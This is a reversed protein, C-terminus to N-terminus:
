YPKFCELHFYKPPRAGIRIVTEGEMLELTCKRCKNNGLTSLRAIDGPELKIQM